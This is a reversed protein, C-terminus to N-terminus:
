LHLAIPIRGVPTLTGDAAPMLFVRKEADVICARALPRMKEANVLRPADFRKLGLRDFHGPDHPIPIDPHNIVPKAHIWFAYRAYEKPLWYHRLAPIGALEINLAYDLCEDDPAKAFSTLAKEWAQLLAAAAASNGWYQVAGSCMLQTMSFFDISHSFRWYRAKGRAAESPQADAPVWADTTLDALWNYIALDTQEKRLMWILDPRQCVECDADLYLIPRDFHGLAWRIFRPKSYDLDGGGKASISRHVAPVEFLSHPLNFRQLSAALRTAKEKYGQTFMACVVFPANSTAHARWVAYSPESRDAGLM